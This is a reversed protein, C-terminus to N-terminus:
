KADTFWSYYEIRFPRITRIQSVPIVVRFIHEDDKKIENVHDALVQAYNTTLNMEQTKEDRYGSHLLCVEVYKREPNAIQAGLTWGIYVKNSELTIQILASPKMSDLVLSEMSNGTKDVARRAGKEKDYRLNFIVAVIPGLIFAVLLTGSRPISTVNSWLTVVPGIRPSLLHVIIGSFVLLLVGVAASDFLLRYGNERPISYRTLNCYKLFLYGGILPVFLLGFGM